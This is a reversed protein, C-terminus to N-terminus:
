DHVSQWKQLFEAGDATASFKYTIDGVKWTKDASNKLREFLLKAIPIDLLSATVLLTSLAAKKESQRWPRTSLQEATLDAGSAKARLMEQAKSYDTDLNASNPSAPGQSSLVPNEVTAATRQIESVMEEASVEGGAVLNSIARNCARTQALSRVDHDPHTFNREKTSASGVADAYRGNPAIARYTYHYVRGGGALDEVREDRKELSLQCALAYKLWGSKRIYGRKEKGNDLIVYDAPKLAQTKFEDFRAMAELVHKPSAPSVLPAEVIERKELAM